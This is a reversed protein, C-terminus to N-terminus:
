LLGQEAFSLTSDGAVIIHDLVRIDILSLASVLRDTISKDARSPESVGSPHNHAFIVSAANVLLAAKVVERPYVSASDITGTFMERYEILRNATDLFLIGFVEHELHAMQLRLYDRVEQPSAATFGKEKIQRSLIELALNVIKQEADTM